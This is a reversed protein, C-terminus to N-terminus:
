KGIAACIDDMRHLARSLTDLDDDVVGHLLDSAAKRLLPDPSRSAAETLESLIAAVEDSTGTAARAVMARYRECAIVKANDGLPTSTASEAAAIDAESPRPGSRPLLVAASFILTLALTLVAATVASATGAPHASRGPARGATYRVVRATVDVVLGALIGAIAGAVAPRRMTEGIFWADFDADCSTPNINFSAVCRELVTAGLIILGNIAGALAGAALGIWGGQSNALAAAYAGASAALVVAFVVSWHHVALNFLPTNRSHAPVKDHIVALQFFMVAAFSATGISAGSLLAPGPALGHHFMGRRSTALLPRGALLALMLLVEPRQALYASVPHEVPAYIWIPPLEAVAAIRWYDDTVATTSADIAPSLEMALLWCAAGVAFALAGVALGPLWTRGRARRGGTQTWARADVVLWGIWLMAGVTLAITLTALHAPTPNDIASRDGFAAPLALHQGVILGSALGLGMAAVPTRIRHSVRQWVGFGITAAVLPALMGFSLWRLTMPDVGPLLLYLLTEVSGEAVATTLGVVFAVATHSWWPEHYLVSADGIVALRRNVSPHTSIVPQQKIISLIRRRPTCAPTASHMRALASDPGDWLRAQADAHLERARLVARQTVFVLMTVVLFRWAAGVAYRPSSGVISFVFPTVVTLVFAFGTALTTYATVVDRNRIHALEHLVTARFAARDTSFRTILGFGLRVQYRGPRGFALGNFSRDFPSVVFTPSRPLGAVRVLRNLYMFLVPDDAATLSSYRRGRTLWWPYLWTVVATVTALLVVGALMFLSKDRELDAACGVFRRAWLGPDAPTGGATTEATCEAYIQSQREDQGPLMFFLWNYVFM